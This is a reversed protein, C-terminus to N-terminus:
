YIRVGFLVRLVKPAWCLYQAGQWGQRPVAGALGGPHGLCSLCSPPVPRQAESPSVTVAGGVISHAATLAGPLECLGLFHVGLVLLPIDSGPTRGSVCHSPGPVVRPLELSPSPGSILMGGAARSSAGLGLLKRPDLSPLAGPCGQLESLTM